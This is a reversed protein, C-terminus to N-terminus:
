VIECSMIKDKVDKGNGFFIHKSNTKVILLV